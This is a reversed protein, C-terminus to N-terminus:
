ASREEFADDAPEGSARSMGERLLASAAAVAVRLTASVRESYVRGLQEALLQFLKQEAALFQLERIEVAALLRGFDLLQERAECPGDAAALILGIAHPLFLRRAKAAAPLIPALRPNLGCLWQVFAESAPDGGALLCDHVFRLDDKQVRTLM